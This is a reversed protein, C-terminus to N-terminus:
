PGRAVTGDELLVGEASPEVCIDPEEVYIDKVKHMHGKRKYSNTCLDFDKCM